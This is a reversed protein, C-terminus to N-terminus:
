GNNLLNVANINFLFYLMWHFRDCLLLGLNSYFSRCRAHGTNGFGNLRSRRSWRSRRSCRSRRNGNGFRSRLRGCLFGRCLRGKGFNNGRDINSEAISEIDAALARTQAPVPTQHHVAGRVGSPIDGDAVSDTRDHELEEHIIDRPADSSIVGDVGAGADRDLRCESPKGSQLSRGRSCPGAVTNVNEM